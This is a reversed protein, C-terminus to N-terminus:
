GNYNRRSRGLQGIKTLFSTAMKPRAALNDDSNCLRRCAVCCVNSNYHRQLASGNSAVKRQNREHLVLRLIGADQTFM